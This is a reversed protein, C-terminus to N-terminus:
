SINKHEQLVKEYSFCQLFCTKKNKNETKNSMFTNFGKIYVYHLKNEDTILLLDTCREFKEDPVHVPYVM